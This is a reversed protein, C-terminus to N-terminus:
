RYELAWKLNSGLRNEDVGVLVLDRQGAFHKALTGALQAATSFHVFGDRQDDGSGSYLGCAKAGLWEARQCVKYIM